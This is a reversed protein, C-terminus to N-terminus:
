INKMIKPNQKGIVVKKYRKQLFFFNSEFEIFISKPNKYMPYQSFYKKQYFELLDFILFEKKKNNKLSNKM